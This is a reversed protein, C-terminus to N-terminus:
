EENAPNPQKVDKDDVKTAIEFSPAKSDGNLHGMLRAGFVASKIQAKWLAHNHRTLKESVTQGALLNSLSSSSMM